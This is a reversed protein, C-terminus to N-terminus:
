GPEFTSKYFRDARVPIRPAPKATRQGARGGHKARKPLRTHDPEPAQGGQARILAYHNRVTRSACGLEKAVEKAPRGLSAAEKISVLEAGTLHQGQSRKIQWRDERRTM